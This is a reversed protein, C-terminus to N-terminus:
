GEEKVQVGGELSLQVGKVRFENEYRWTRMLNNVKPM